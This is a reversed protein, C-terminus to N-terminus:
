LILRHQKRHKVQPKDGKRWTKFQCTKVNINATKNGAKINSKIVSMIRQYLM